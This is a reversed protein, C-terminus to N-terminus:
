KIYKNIDLPKKNGRNVNGYNKHSTIVKNGMVPDNVNTTKDDNMIMLTAEDENKAKGSRVLASVKKDFVTPKGTTGGHKAKYEALQKRSNASIGAVKIKTENAEDAIEKKNGYLANIQDLKNAHKFGEAALVNNQKTEEDQQDLQRKLIDATKMSAMTMHPLAQLISSDDNPNINFDKFVKTQAEPPLQSLIQKTASVKEADPLKSIMIAHRALNEANEVQKALDLKKTRDEVEESENRKFSDMKLANYDYAQKNALVNQEATKKASVAQDIAALNIGYQNAM